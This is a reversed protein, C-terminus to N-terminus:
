RPLLHLRGRAAGMSQEPIASVVTNESDNGKDDYLVGGHELFFRIAEDRGTNMPMRPTPRASKAFRQKTSGDVQKITSILSLRECISRGSGTCSREM